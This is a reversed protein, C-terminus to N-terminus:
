DLLGAAANDRWMDAERIYRRVMAVSRHGTQRMIAAESKGKRAATTAMGARLSHGAYRSADLGAAATARKVILAVARGTLARAGVAGHRTVTRFIAGERIGAADLWARLARVPCADPTAAYPVAVKRGAGEQDTKSRRLIVTLGETGFEVDATTLGVLEARRFAGAFGVLLLARDRTGLLGPPLTDLVQRLETGMLPAKQTQATGMTRRIGKMVEQVPGTGRPSPHGALVHAQSIAALERALTAVKRGQEARASLYLGVTDPSAPLSPLGHAECWATFTRWDARYAEVTRPARAASAFARARDVVPALAGGSSGKVLKLTGM